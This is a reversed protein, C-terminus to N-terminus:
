SLIGYIQFTIKLNVRPGLDFVDFQDGKSYSAFLRLLLRFHM